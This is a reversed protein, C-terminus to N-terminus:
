APLRHPPSADAHLRWLGALSSCVDIVSDFGFGILAVSGAIVGAGISVLAELSNYAITAFTLWQGSRVVRARTPVASASM